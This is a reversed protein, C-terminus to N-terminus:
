GTLMEWNEESAIKNERKRVETEGEVQGRSRGKKRGLREGLPLHPPSVSSLKFLSPSCASSPIPQGAGDKKGTAM